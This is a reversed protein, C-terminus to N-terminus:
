QGKKLDITNKKNSIYVKRASLPKKVLLLKYNHTLLDTLVDTLM